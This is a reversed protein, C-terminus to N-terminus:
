IKYDTSPPLRINSSTCPNSGVVEGADLAESVRGRWWGVKVGLNGFAETMHIYLLSLLLCETNVVFFSAVVNEAQKISLTVKGRDHLCRWVRPLTSTYGITEAYFQM